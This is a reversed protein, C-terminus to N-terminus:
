MRAFEHERAVFQAVADYLCGQVGAARQLGGGLRETADALSRRWM